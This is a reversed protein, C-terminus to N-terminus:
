LGGPDNAYKVEIKGKSKAAEQKYEDKVIYWQLSIITVVCFIGIIKKIM